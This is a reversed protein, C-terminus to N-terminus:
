RFNLKVSSPSELAPTPSALTTEATKDETVNLSENSENSFMSYSSYLPMKSLYKAKMSLNNSSAQNPTEVMRQFNPQRSRILPLKDYIKKSTSENSDDEEEVLCNDADKFTYTNTDNNQIKSEDIEEYLAEDQFFSIFHKTLSVSPTSQERPIQEKHINMRRPIGSSKYQFWAIM